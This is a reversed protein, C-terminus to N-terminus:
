ISKKAILLNRLSIKRLKCTKPRSIYDENSFPVNRGCDTNSSFGIPCRACSDPFKVVELDNYDLQVEITIKQGIENYDVHKKINM